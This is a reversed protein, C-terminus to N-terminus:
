VWGRFGGSKHQVAWVGEQWNDSREWLRVWATITSFHPIVRVIWDKIPWDSFTFTSNVTQKQRVTSHTLYCKATVHHWTMTGTSRMLQEQCEWDINPNNLSGVFEWDPDPNNLSGVLVARLILHNWSTFSWNLPASSSLVPLFRVLLQQCLIVKTM